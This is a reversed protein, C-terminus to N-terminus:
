IGGSDGRAHRLRGGLRHHCRRSITGLCTGVNLETSSNVSNVGSQYNLVHTLYQQELILQNQVNNFDSQGFGNQTAITDGPYQVAAPTTTPYLENSAFRRLLFPHKPLYKCRVRLCPPTHGSRHRWGSLNNTVLINSIYAYANRGGPPIPILAM